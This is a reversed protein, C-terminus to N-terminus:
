RAWMVRASGTQVRPKMTIGPAISHIWYRLCDSSHTLNQNSKEPKGEEDGVVERLDTVLRVCRPNVKLSVRQDFSSRLAENVLTVSELIGPAKSAVRDRIPIGAHRLQAKAKTWQAIGDSVERANGAPDGVVYVEPRWGWRKWMQVFEAVARNLDMSPGHVEHCVTFLNDTGRHQGVLMHMGPNINFDIALHVPEGPRLEVPALNGEHFHNYIAGNGLAQPNQQHMPEWSWSAELRKGELQFRTFRREDLPEGEVRGLEDPGTALSPLSIVTWRAGDEQKLLHGTLDSVHMRHHICVINADPELRSAATAHFWGEVKTRYAVSMADAWKGYPDDIFLDDGRNGIVSEDMGVCRMGGGQDTHWENKATTDDKLRTRLYPNSKFEDRVKAGFARALPSTHTALILRRSPKTELRWVPVWLSCFESKGWGPGLNVIIRANGETMQLAIVRSIHCLHRYATWKRAVGFGSFKEALMHPALLGSDRARLYETPQPLM